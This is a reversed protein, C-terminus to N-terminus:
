NAGIIVMILGAAAVVAALIYHIKGMKEEEPTPHTEYYSVREEVEKKLREEIDNSKSMKNVGMRM